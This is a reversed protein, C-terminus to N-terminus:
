SLTEAQKYIDHYEDMHVLHGDDTCRVYIGDFLDEVEFSAVMSDDSHLIDVFAQAEQISKFQRAYRNKKM